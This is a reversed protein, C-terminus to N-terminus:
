KGAQSGKATQQKVSDLNFSAGHQMPPFDTFTKELEEVQNQVMVFRWFEHFYFNPGWSFSGQQSGQSPTEMREFPDLRLNTIMPTNPKITAGLWGDPQEIFRFKYDGIRVAGMESEAFYYIVDRKTPGQGTILDLQNYGDLHAKYPTGDITKGKKLDEVINPNGAAAVLTPFWDLGSILQNEVKGAPVHGSWSVIAPVRFGGEYITGKAGRFPTTGGDPWTFTEAGNDTTFIVITNKDLGKDKLYKMAKGVIDDLQLMAAEEESWGNEPTMTKEYEPSLHTIIHVRTPNLWVFFPKDEQLSKDMFKIAHGLIEDDVTEMRKPPLAGADEIVQMGVKGWRKDVTSDDKDSAWSHLMNRPGIIMNLEPSYSHWFPDEMADLHYLYGFFEDFGHVTPLFQNLDGLHNKGFQGTSYGMSKLVTAITPAEAPLGIPSGAQGVTTMGTRIPLEGTIFNARGATCSAEAYYDTFLMGEKAIKDINPTRGAMIGQNYAGINFWGVDDAMIVLINPKDTTQAQAAYSDTPKEQAMMEPEYPQKSDASVIKGTGYKQWLQATPESVCVYDGANIRYVLVLNARCETESDKSQLANGYPLAPVIAILLISVIISFLIIHKKSFVTKRM